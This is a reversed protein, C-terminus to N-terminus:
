RGVPLQPGRRVPGRGRALGRPRVGRQKGLLAVFIKAKQAGFGPMAAIRAHLEAGSKADDVGGRRPRRLRRGLLRGLEQVRGAM